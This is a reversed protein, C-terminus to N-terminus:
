ERNSNFRSPENLILQRQGRSLLIEKRKEELSIIGMSIVKSIFEMPYGTKQQLEMATIGKNFFVIDRIELIKDNEEQKCENCCEPPLGEAYTHMQKCRPCRITITNPNEM